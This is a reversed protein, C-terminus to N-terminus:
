MNPDAVFYFCLFYIIVAHFLSYFLYLVFKVITFYKGDMSRKYLLPHQMLYLM